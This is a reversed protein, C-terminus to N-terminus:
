EKFMKHALVVQIGRKEAECIFRDTGPSERPPDAYFAYLRDPQWNDMMAANRIHLPAKGLRKWEAPVSTVKFGSAHALRHVIAHLGRPCSGNVILTTKPDMTALVKAVLAENTYNRSGTFAIRYKPLKGLRRCTQRFSERVYEYAPEAKSADSQWAILRDLLALIIKRNCHRICMEDVNDVVVADFLKIACLLGDYFSVESIVGAQAELWDLEADLLQAPTDCAAM